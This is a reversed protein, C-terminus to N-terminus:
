CHKEQKHLSSSYLKPALTQYFPGEASLSSVMNKFDYRTRKVVSKYNNKSAPQSSHETIPVLLKLKDAQLQTQPVSRDLKFVHHHRKNHECTFTIHRSPSQLDALNIGTEDSFPTNIEHYRKFERHMRDLEKAIHMSNTKEM